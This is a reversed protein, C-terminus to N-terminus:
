ASKQYNYVDLLADVINEADKFHHNRYVCKRVAGTEQQFAIRGFTQSRRTNFFSIMVITNGNGDAYLCQVKFGDNSRVGTIKNLLGNLQELQIM